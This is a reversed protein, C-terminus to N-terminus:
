DDDEEWRTIRLDLEEECTAVMFQLLGILQDISKCRFDTDASKSTFQKTKENFGTFVTNKLILKYM